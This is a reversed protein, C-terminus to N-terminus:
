SANETLTKQWEYPLSLLYRAVWGSVDGVEVKVWSADANMGTVYLLEGGRLEQIVNSGLGAGDRVNLRARTVGFVFTEPEDGLTLASLNTTYDIDEIMLPHSSEVVPITALDVDIDVACLAVWGEVGNYDVRLWMDLDRVNINVCVRNTDFENRGTITLSGKILGGRLSYETSPGSRINVGTGEATAPTASDQAFLPISVAMVVILTLLVIAFKKM